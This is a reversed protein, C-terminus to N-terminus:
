IFGLEKKIKKVTEKPNPDVRNEKDGLLIVKDGTLTEWTRILTNGSAPSAKPNFMKVITRVDTSELIKEERIDLLFDIKRSLELSKFSIRPMVKLDFVTAVKNYIYVDDIKAHPYDSRTKIVYGNDFYTFEKNSEVDKARDIWSIFEDDIPFILINGDEYITVTKNDRNIDEWKLNIIRSLKNGLIGYRSLILPMVEMVTVEGTNVSLECYKFLDEKSMVKYSAMTKNVKCLEEKSLGKLGNLGIFGKSVCWDLYNDILHYVREKTNVSSTPISNMLNILEEISFNMLDKNKIVEMNIVNKKLANFSTKMTQENDYLSRIFTNKNIEFTSKNKYISEREKDTLDEYFKGFLFERSM